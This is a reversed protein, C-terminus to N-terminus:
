NSLPPGESQGESVKALNKRTGPNYRQVCRLQIINIPYGFPVRRSTIISDNIQLGIVSGFTADRRAFM